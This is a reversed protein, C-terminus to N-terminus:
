IQHGDLTYIFDGSVDQYLISALYASGYARIKGLDLHLGFM